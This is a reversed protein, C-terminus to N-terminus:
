LVPLDTIAVSFGALMMSPLGCGALTSTMAGRSSLIFGDLHIPGEGGHASAPTDVVQEPALV